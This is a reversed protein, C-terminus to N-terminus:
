WLASTMLPCSPTVLFEEGLPPQTGPWGTSGRGQPAQENAKQLSSGPSGAPPSHPPLFQHRRVGFLRKRSGRCCLWCELAVRLGGAWSTHSEMIARHMKMQELCILWAGACHPSRHPFAIGEGPHWAGERAVQGNRVAPLSCLVSRHSTGMPSGAGM